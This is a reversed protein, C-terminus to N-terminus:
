LAPHVVIGRRGLKKFFPRTYNLSGKFESHLGPLVQDQQSGGAEAEGSSSNCTHVVM